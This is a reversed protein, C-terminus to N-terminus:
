KLRIGIENEKLSKIDLDKDKLLYDVLVDIDDIKKYIANEELDGFDEIDEKLEEILESCEYSIKM